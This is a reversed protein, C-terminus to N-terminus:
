KDLVLEYLECLNYILIFVYILTTNVLKDMKNFLILSACLLEITSEFQDIEAMVCLM